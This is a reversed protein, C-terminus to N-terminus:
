RTNANQLDRVARRVHPVLNSQFGELSAQPGMRAVERGYVDFVVATLGGGVAGALQFRKPPQGDSVDYYSLPVKGGLESKQHPRGITKRFGDCAGCDGGEFVVVRASDYMPPTTPRSLRSLYMSGVLVCTVVFLSAAGLIYPLQALYKTEIVDRM